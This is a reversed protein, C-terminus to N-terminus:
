VQFQRLRGLAVGEAFLGFGATRTVKFTLSTELDSAWNFVEEVSVAESLLIQANKSFLRLPRHHNMPEPDSISKKSRSEIM